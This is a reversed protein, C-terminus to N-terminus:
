KAWKDAKWALQGVRLLSSTNFFAERHNVGKVFGVVPQQKMFGKVVCIAGYDRRAIRFENIHLNGNATVVEFMSFFLNAYYFTQEPSIKASQHDNVMDLPTSYRRTRRPLPLPQRGPASFNM